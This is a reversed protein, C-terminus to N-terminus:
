ARTKGRVAGSKTGKQAAPEVPAADRAADAEFSAGFPALAARTAAVDLHGYLDATIAISAHGLVRSVVVLPVGAALMLSAATHRLDHLRVAPYGALAKLTRWRVDLLHVPWGTGDARAFVLDGGGTRAHQATLAALARPILPVSRRSGKAKLESFRAQGSAEVRQQRVAIVGERLDVDQWRLGALEGRRLGATVALTWLLVLDPQAAAAVALLHDVEPQRLWAREAKPARPPIVGACPDTHLVGLRRAAALCAILAVLCGRAYAPSVETLMQSLARQIAAPTLRDLRTEGLPGRWRGLRTRYMRLTTERVTGPLLEDLWRDCWASLTLPASKALAGQEAQRRVDDLACQVETKTRAKRYVRRRTGDSQTIIMAGAWRGNELQYISGLGPSRRPM